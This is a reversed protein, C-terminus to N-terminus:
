HGDSSGAGDFARTGGPVLARDQTEAAAIRWAKTKPCRLLTEDRPWEDLVRMRQRITRRLM